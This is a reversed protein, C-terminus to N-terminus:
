YDITLGSAEAYIDLTSSVMSTVSHRKRLYEQANAALERAYEHAGLLKKLADVMDLEDEPDFKVATRRDIAIDDSGNECAAVAIGVGMAELMLPDYYNGDAVRIYIDGAGLVSRWPEIRPVIVTVQALGLSAIMKRLVKESRGNAIIILLFEYGTIVLYKVAELFLKLKEARQPCATIVSPLRDNDDFCITSESVFTGMNIRCIKSRLSPYEKILGDKVRENPAIVGALRRSKLQFRGLRFPGSNVTLLYPIDLRRSIRRALPERSPCLCHVVNPQFEYLKEFLRERNQYWFVPLDYFPYRVIQVMPLTGTNIGYEFGCVLCMSVSENALGAILHELYLPYNYFVDSSSILVPRVPSLKNKNKNRNM